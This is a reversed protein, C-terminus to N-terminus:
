SLRGVVIGAGEIYVPMEEIDKVLQEWSKLLCGDCRQADVGERSGHTQMVSDLEVGCDVCHGPEGAHTRQECTLCDEAPYDRLYDAAPYDTTFHNAPIFDETGCKGCRYWVETGLKNGNADTEQSDLRGVMENAM